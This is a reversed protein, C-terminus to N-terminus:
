WCGYKCKRRMGGKKLNTIEKVGKLSLSKKPNLFQLENTDSFKKVGTYGLGELINAQTKTGQLGLTAQNSM